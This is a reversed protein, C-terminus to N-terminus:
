LLQKGKQFCSFMAAYGYVKFPKNNQLASYYNDSIRLFHMYLFVRRAAVYAINVSGLNLLFNEINFRLNLLAVTMQYLLVCWSLATNHVTAIIIM